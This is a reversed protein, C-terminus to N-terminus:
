GTAVHIRRLVTALRQANARPAIPLGALVFISLSRKKMRQVQVRMDCNHDM